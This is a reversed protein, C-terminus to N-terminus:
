KDIYRMWADDGPTTDLPGDQRFINDNDVADVDIWEGGTYKTSQKHNKEFDVAGDNWGVSGQWDGEKYTHISSVKDDAADANSDGTANRDSIVIA